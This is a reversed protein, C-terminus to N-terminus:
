LDAVRNRHELREAEKEVRRGAEETAAAFQDQLVQEKTVLELDGETGPM